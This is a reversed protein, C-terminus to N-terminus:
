IMQAAAPRAARPMLALLYGPRLPTRNVNVGIGSLADAVANSVAAVSGIVGGEGVGKFGGLTDSSPCDVHDLVMDPVDMATPMLYDLLSANLFQGNEDYIIEEMLVEGIGQAVGGHLQGDVIMQNIVTGCDHVILYKEIQVRGDQADVAVFAIHTSNAITLPPPEYFETAMLGYGDGSPPATHVMGYAARAVDAFGVAKEPADRVMAHSDRLIVRDEPVGLLPAAVRKVQQSLKEAARIIAGGGTIAGRSAFTNTGYPTSSTDGEFVAIDDLRAGMHEAAVQAFATYHGQGSTAHSVYVSIRGTPEMRLTAGDIGPVKMMGRVKYAPSGGGTGEIMNGIGVGRYKGDVLRDAPQSARFADYGSLVRARELCERYTGRDYRLGMVNTWPQDRPGIVNRLRVEIPDLGLRRGIRDMIGEIAMCCAPQAVGRYTGAPASHTAVAHTAYAYHRIKYPGVLMRAGGLAEIASGFPYCSYAGANAYLRLHLSGIVGDPSFGVEVQYIHDRAHINSLLEERRDQVWKVPRRYKLCLAAMVIEEPYFIAKTGFGGGVDPAVVRIHSEPCGLHEALGTRVLHPIQTSTYFVMRDGREPAALCGRPEMPVGAVMGHRFTETLRLASGAHVSEFGPSSFEGRYLINDPAHGHVAPAGAAMAQELTPSAPLVEYEFQVLEIADQAAYKDAALVVAVHEGVFRVQSRAIVDRDAPLYGPLDIGTSMPRALAALDDGTLVAFVGPVELAASADIGLIRACAHPSMVFSAHLTGPPEPVDDVFMGAGRLLYSDEVRHVSGNAHDQMPDNMM